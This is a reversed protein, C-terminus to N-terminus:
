CTQLLVYVLNFKQRFANIVNSFGASQSTHYTYKMVSLSCGDPILVYSTMIRYRSLDRDAM